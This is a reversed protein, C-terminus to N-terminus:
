SFFVNTITEQKFRICLTSSADISAMDNVFTSVGAPVSGAIITCFHWLALLSTPIHACIPQYSLSWSLIFSIFTETLLYLMLHVNPM